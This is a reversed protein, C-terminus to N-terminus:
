ASAGRRHDLAGENNPPEVPILLVDCPANRAVTEAVSGILFRSLGTTGYTGMVLLDAEWEKAEALIETAALGLRM